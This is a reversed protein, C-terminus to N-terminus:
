RRRPAGNAIVGGPGVSALTTANNWLDRVYVDASGNTDDSVLSANSVFVVYQGNARVSTVTNSLASGWVTLESSGNGTDSPSGARSVLEIEFPNREGFNYDTALSGPMTLLIDSFEDNVAANGTVVGNVRGLTDKGDVYGAAQTETLTYGGPRLNAFTYDGATTAALNVPNGRDDTGTLNIAVGAISTEGSNVAGDNNLDLWVQGQIRSPRIEAFNYGDATAVVASGFNVFIVNSDQRNDVTGGHTGATEQGDLFGAPQTAVIRYSGPPFTGGFTYRGGQDTATNAVTVGSSDILSVSVGSIGSDAGNFVGDNDRDDFVRGSLDINVSVQIATLVVDNGPQGPARPAGGVYSITFGYGGAVVVDGEELGSFIGDIPASGRNDIVMFKQGPTPVFGGLLQVAFTGDLKVNGLVVIQGYDVGPIGFVNPPTHGVVQEILGGTVTQTYSAFVPPPQPPLAVPDPIIVDREEGPPLILDPPLPDLNDQQYGCGVFLRGSEIRVIGHNELRMELFTIGTGGSKVFLGHNEFVPCDAHSGGMTGDFSNTFTAGALNTFRSNPGYFNVTGGSWVADGANVLNFDRVNHNGSLTMDSLVTLSGHGNVGQLTAGAWTFTGTVTFDEGAILTGGSLTLSPLTTTGPAFNADTLDLRGYVIVDGLGLITGSLAATVSSVETVSAKYSGSVVSVGGFFRVRDADLSGDSSTANLLWVTTKPQGAAARAVLSGHNEFVTSNLGFGVTGVDVRITGDNITRGVFFSSQGFYLDQGTAGGTKIIIGTSTNHFTSASDNSSTGSDNTLLLTGSNEFVSNNSLHLTGQTLTGWRVTQGEPNIFHFGNTLGGLGFIETGGNATLSGQGNAGSLTGFNNGNWYGWSFLGSVELDDDSVLTGTVMFLSSLQKADASLTAASLDLTGAFGILVDGLDAVPGSLAATGSSVETVSAKYSGSVVSVGGFFRVRDADISGDSSTANLLWVTTKPQGDAARAVLSGHNEFVTSNLGFGVTGVDVRITGDNITRGVFFSSQGFYLDQGTAGGTKIIIGTSTNHFTSASDNSSTGSDNTLLLTGSNEFVSNNSLHLTGQTLTGWRVTQGEPNIFHFGNTLGGLGFIETGGNATLSGQGNAGSLTGFNNGNWYGWSFLGSVELDDDSVLTGTVMFLSSLQKADASLTAASLDLTGAFDIFVDGLDAVPGSLAATGSSVETVSAKYSGSVVSVGGFFRVRDADISGDSSTANLLWVTTKPQGAAARAVLSGHNEFVTSNLGFGVTGVDVRITGDNITRGVFFSSQGFYLDQGTAGGTKIIIGTSTNHFTSASDNSSTGSDNTLLLTGSNEFVSNNSLHLTGQTLTGWRVTQGEPNIFHFGNTLGGLGFIETGGNATLSGQGNAGSLTGFNNGNWYGWSFLGSVELDDDSVLTGTVMFLSSLQKADASLTAASLDLTGAFGILVDGLDTVPGSLAATVSSVETVSAKYSGSVVSVGGFFRVRDADISGDSSTANLLWVTTKPQGDAARAVLSGHNEFVTSNLGFGVTGVDVRITGDNITRGVFFSSQGFYLDQGTAGGTKIIIGTSTNHFTSASDNSSTGSDNTLLLTGSNEFVSNNSLHLTGQTLTGWRVTQGEPNIFHFGNTLGGLGFIETGGNATLSGQGNAGSLTGFNNGNWYGWSFLGSVELDDDSVLTGTVMFLSSLQKADASLTAASLDLTGAFDIFVDGLDAVPGSLAATGSSVETVSAKYSGSVVSVGGFFRVRDADISGDSSTANLLWVTTKPQGAAARAVLSGHNEFVTSNLGFGVTGVDVRITGDNITRGVFFSSQGFYLDQGTAGGTKIIIGTSTNHFTSASDNSSTGSDNTLLLTGSNEFVSNNSLHLTGQTLTGWRVTQGEPNIFHFGNTLGGLGFIETGGNATLSGQGNAGSLTGFNNGNWYGWSFLGSVELDDDSVLTGTVMFLSSLQKADASLTAASLDLTGAFDIFVDGLDAVPGSLAATGSSVETVSAKYSGSVVSVGGFFRVRDADISGDSSTANLLWVTTKPQGAAARAVLSGHNEFVTSNLGFGVTGVDVRITGDNITRGVFFSSQGFYLDQGTAGGTKIIIGTSTNHFTSASDNSSTGSDNTLLLTGSNEFVSNNSLHLTGQTLTGWEVTQGEPNIFHFGDRLGGYGLIETGGNATLSGQGNAGSLTGFSVSNSYGWVLFGDVATNGSGGFTGIVTLAGYLHSDAAVMLSGANVNLGAYSTLSEISVVGSSTVTIGAFASGIEVDDTAAPLVNGNWNIPNNWDFDGGGGDWSVIALLTREELQEQALSRAAPSSQRLRRVSRPRPMAAKRQWSSTKNLACLVSRWLNM